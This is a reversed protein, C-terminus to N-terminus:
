VIIGAASQTSRLSLKRQLTLNITILLAQERNVTQKLRSLSQEPSHKAEDIQVVKLQSADLAEGPEPSHQHEPGVRDDINDHEQVKQDSHHIMGILENGYTRYTQFLQCLNMTRTRQVQEHTDFDQLRLHSGNHTTKFKM